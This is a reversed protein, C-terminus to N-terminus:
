KLFKLVRWVPLKALATRISCDLGSKDWFSAGCDTLYAEFAALRAKKDKIKGADRRMFNSRAGALGHLNVSDLFLCFNEPANALKLADVRFVDLIGFPKAQAVEDAIRLSVPNAFIRRVEFRTHRAQRDVIALFEADDEAKVRRAPQSPVEGHAIKYGDSADQDYAIWHVASEISGCMWTQPLGASDTRIFFKSETPSGALNLILDDIAEPYDFALDVRQLLLQAVTAKGNFPFLLKICQLFVKTDAESMRDPNLTFKMGFRMRPKSPRMSFVVKAKSPCTLVYNLHYPEGKASLKHVLGSAQLRAGTQELEHDTIAAIPLVLVLKDLRGVVQAAARAVDTKMAKKPRVAKHSSKKKCINSAQRSRVPRPYPTDEETGPDFM